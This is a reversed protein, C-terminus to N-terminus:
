APDDSPDYGPPFYDGIESRLSPREILLRDLLQRARLFDPQLKLCEALQSVAWDHHQIQLLAEALLFRPKPHRPNIGASAALYAVARAVQGDQLLASGLLEYTKFHPAIEASQSLLDIAKAIEGRESARRGEEYLELAIDSDKDSM